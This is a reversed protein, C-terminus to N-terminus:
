APRNRHGHPRLHLDAGAQKSLDRTRIRCLCPHEDTTNKTSSNLHRGRRRDSWENLPTRAPTHTDSWYVEIVYRSHGSKSEQAV